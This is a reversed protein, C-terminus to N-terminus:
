SRLEKEAAARAANLERMKETSGGPRDPHYRRALLRFAANVLSMDPDPDNIELTARWGTSPKPLALFGQFARELMVGGGHREMQRLGEIQLCLSRINDVLHDYRDQALVLSKKEHMFYVAVGPDDIIRKARYPLGDSKKVPQNTSLVAYTVGMLRLQTSLRDLTATWSPRQGYGGLHGLRNEPPTRAWGEPWELPFEATLVM